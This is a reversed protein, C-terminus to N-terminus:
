ESSGRYEAKAAAVDADIEEHTVHAPLRAQIREVTANFRQLADAREAIRRAFYDGLALQVLEDVSRREQAALRELERAQEDPLEITRQM